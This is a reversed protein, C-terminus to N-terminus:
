NARSIMVVDHGGLAGFQAVAFSNALLRVPRGPVNLRLPLGVFKFDLRM